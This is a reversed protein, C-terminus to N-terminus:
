DQSEELARRESGTSVYVLSAIGISIVLFVIVATVVKWKKSPMAPENYENVIVYM